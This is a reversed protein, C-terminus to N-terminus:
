PKELTDDQLYYYCYFLSKGPTWHNLSQAELAPPEPEIGPQPVLHPMALLNKLKKFYLLLIFIMKETLSGRFVRRLWSGEHM